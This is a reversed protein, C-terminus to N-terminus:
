RSALRAKQRWVASGSANLAARAMSFQSPARQAPAGAAATCTSMSAM